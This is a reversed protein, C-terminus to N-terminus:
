PGRLRWDAARRQNEYHWFGREVESEAIQRYKPAHNEVAEEIAEVYMTQSELLTVLVQVRPMTKGLSEPLTGAAASESAHFSGSFDAPSRWAPPFIQDVPDPEGESAGGHDLPLVHSHRDSMMAVPPQTAPSIDFGAPLEIRTAQGGSQMVAASDSAAIEETLEPQESDEVSSDTEQPTLTAPPVSSAASQDSGKPAEPGAVNDEGPAEGLIDQGQGPELADPPEVKREDENDEM